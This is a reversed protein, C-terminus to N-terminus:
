GSVRNGNAVDADTVSIYRATGAIHYPATANVAYRTSTTAYPVVFEGNESKQRYVFARGTNTIVPVEIVGEGSIHAGTVYEFIKVSKIDTLTITGSEPFLNVTANSPSEHILRYHRLAPVELLSQNPLDSFLDAFRGTTLATGEPAILSDNQVTRIDREQVSTIVRAYGNVDGATEGPAPVPRITYQVYEGTKPLTMSGDFNHLRAVMTQFYADDYLHIKQLQSPHTADSVMFWKVYPSIDTTKSQWPVLNTFTDVAMNSDTIVYKGGYKALLLDADSENRSLFYAATGSTGYLHDQFPNTNPIRRSIFTIWHGADWVAMIGYAGPPYSFGRAEYQQFYDIGTQPTNTQTWVLSEIWDPSIERQPTSMGYTIDSVLASLILALALIVVAVVVLDKLVERSTSAHSAPRSPEQKKPRKLRSKASVEKPNGGPNATATKMGRVKPSGLPDPESERSTSQSTRTEPDKKHIESLRPEHHREQDPLPKDPKLSLNREEDVHAGPDPSNRVIHSQIFHVICDQRWTFPETICIAALLVVNVTFYYEFRQFQITLLLMVVSWIFLFVSQHNRIKVAAYGLIVFGGAMLLLAVNFHEWAASLSWPLTEVVGVSFLSSGSLLGMSQGILSHLLPIIQTMVFGIVALLALSGLYAWKKGLFIKSLLCLVVTEGILALNVYVIGISYQTLSVGPQKIGFLLLLITSVLLLGLNVVLLYEPPHGSFYDLINQVCTYVAIVILVIIVTTSSLLGLFYIAGTLASFLVPYMLTKHQNWAVPHSKTYSITYIYAFFFLASFLVEAIHHDIWGYSSISFYQVSVVAILGAAVIGAKWNWLTKGLIYMVPVMIVALLPALLGATIIISAHSTAGSVICCIAALFPFLPGWDIVKGTPFATMPDFWDYQPFNHVMVEIQRLTYYSDTDYIYLFGQNQIFFTPILRLALAIAAFILLVAWIVYRHNRTM